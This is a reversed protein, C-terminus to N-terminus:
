NNSNIMLTTVNAYICIKPVHLIHPQLRLIRHSKAHYGRSKFEHLESHRDWISHVSLADNMSSAAAIHALQHRHSRAARAVGEARVSHVCVGEAAARHGVPAAATGVVELAEVGRSDSREVSASDGELRLVSGVFDIWRNRLHSGEGVHGCAETHKM